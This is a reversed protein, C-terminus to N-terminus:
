SAVCTEGARHYGKPCIDPHSADNAQLWQCVIGNGKIQAGYGDPCFGPKPGCGAGAKYFFGPPCDNVRRVAQGDIVNAGLGHGAKIGSKGALGPALQAKPDPGETTFDHKAPSKDLEGPTFTKAEPANMVEKASSGDGVSIIPEANKLADPNLAGVQAAASQALFMMSAMAISGVFSRM